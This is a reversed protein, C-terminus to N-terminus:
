LFRDLVTAGLGKSLLTTTGRIYDAPRGRDGKFEFRQIAGVEHMVELLTIFEDRSLQRRCKYYLQSRQIPDMGTSVLQARIIDLATAFKTRQETTEFIKGSDVKIATVLGIATDIHDAQILWTGDNIALLAAIRLVHADERAEFSQKFTDLSRERAEYWSSFVRVAQEDVEVPGHALAETAIIKVDDCLDQYLEKDNEVPWPIHQKPENSIIFYCRSTFGGEIVNPNVTKMLWVPTSASLFHIWVRRLVVKGRMLTGGGEYAAPCDYLDTLLTPMHAIYRETGMFVALEPVSACLQACDHEMTRDQLLDLLKEPTIKGDILGIPGDGGIVTRAIDTAVRVSTTKRAVGSEGVLVIFMNLYVPARPRQVFTNRGCVASIAWLGCYFDFIEATEQAQMYKMYRGMFSNAPVLRSYHIM